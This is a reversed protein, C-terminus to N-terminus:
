FCRLQKKRVPSGFSRERECVSVRSAATSETWVSECFAARVDDGCGCAFACVGVGLYCTALVVARRPAGGRSVVGSRERLCVAYAEVVGLRRPEKDICVVGGVALARYVLAADGRGAVGAVGAVGAAGAAGAAGLSDALTEGRRGVVDSTCTM